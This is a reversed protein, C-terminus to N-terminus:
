IIVFFFFFYETKNNIYYFGKTFTKQSTSIPTTFEFKNDDDKRITENSNSFIIILLILIGAIAITISIFHIKTKFENYFNTLERPIM